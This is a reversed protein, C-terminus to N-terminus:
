VKSWKLWNRAYFVGWVVCWPYLAPVHDLYGWAAWAFESAFGLAWGARHRNGAVLVGLGGMVNPVWVGAQIVWNV